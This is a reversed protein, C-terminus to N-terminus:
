YCYKIKKTTNISNSKSLTPPRVSVKLLGPEKANKVIYTKFHHQILLLTLYLKYMSEPNHQLLLTTTGKERYNIIKKSMKKINRNVMPFCVYTPLHNM